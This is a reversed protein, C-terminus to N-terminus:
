KKRSITKNDDSAAKDNCAEKNARCRVVERCDSKSGFQTNKVQATKEAKRLMKSTEADDSSDTNQGLDTSQSSVSARRTQQYSLCLEQWRERNGDIGDLM